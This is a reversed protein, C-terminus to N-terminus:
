DTEEWLFWTVEVGLSEPKNHIYAPNAEDEENWDSQVLNEDVYEESAFRKIIAM